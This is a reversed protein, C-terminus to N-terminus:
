DKQNFVVKIGLLGKGRDESAPSVLNRRAIRRRGSQFKQVFPRHVDDDTVDSQGISVSVFQNGLCSVAPRTQRRDRDAGIEGGVILFASAVGPEIHKECLRHVQGSEAMDEFPGRSDM